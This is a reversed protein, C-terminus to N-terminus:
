GDVAWRDYSKRLTQFWKNTRLSSIVKVESCVWDLVDAERRMKDEPVITYRWTGFLQDESSNM